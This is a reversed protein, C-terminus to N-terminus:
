GEAGVPLIVIEVRPHAKDVQKRYSGAVIQRDDHYAFGQLSDHVSKLIHDCDPEHSPHYYISM